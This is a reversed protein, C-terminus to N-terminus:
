SWSRIHHLQQKSHRLQSIETAGDHTVYYLGRTHYLMIYMYLFFEIKKKDRGKTATGVRRMSVIKLM